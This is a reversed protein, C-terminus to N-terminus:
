GSVALSSLRRLGGCLRGMLIMGALHRGAARGPGM